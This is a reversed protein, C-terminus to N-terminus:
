KMDEIYSYIHSFIICFKSVETDIFQGPLDPHYKTILSRISDEVENEDISEGYSLMEKIARHFREMDLPHITYWTDVKAWKELADNIAKKQLMRVGKIKIYLM